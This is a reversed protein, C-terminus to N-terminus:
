VGNKKTGAIMAVMDAGYLARMTHVRDLYGDSPNKLRFLDDRFGPKSTTSEVYNAERYAHVLRLQTQIGSEVFATNTESVALQIAGMITRRTAATLTCSSADDMLSARCEAATTWVVLLDVNSGSDDYLARQYHGNSKRSRLHSSTRVDQRRSLPSYGFHLTASTKRVGNHNTTTTTTTPAHLDQYHDATTNPVFNQDPQCRIESTGSTPNPGIQCIRAGVRISGFVRSEHVVVEDDDDEGDAHLIIFNVDSADGDCDGHRNYVCSWPHSIYELTCLTCASDSNSSGTVVCVSEYWENASVHASSSSSRTCAIVRGGPAITLQIGAPPPQKSSELGLQEVSFRCTQVGRDNVTSCDTADARHIEQSRRPESDTAAAAAITASSSLLVLLLGLRRQM